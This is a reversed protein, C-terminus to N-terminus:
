PQKLIFPSSHELDCERLKTLMLYDFETLSSFEGHGLVIRSTINPIWLVYFTFIFGVMAQNRSAMM